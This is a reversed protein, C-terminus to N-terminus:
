PVKIGIFYHMISIPSKTIRSHTASYKKVKDLSLDVGNILKDNQSWEIGDNQDGNVLDDIWSNIEQLWFNFDNKEIYAVIASKNIDTGHLNLKYREIGGSKKKKIGIVYERERDAGPTPLRKAEITFFPSRDFRHMFVGIDVRRDNGKEQEQIAEKCFIFAEDKASDSLFNTLFQSIREESDNEENIYEQQFKVLNIEIFSVVNEIILGKRFSPAPSNITGTSYNSSIM